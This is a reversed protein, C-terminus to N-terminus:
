DPRIVKDRIERWTILRIGQQEILRRAESSTFFDFDEQRWRAGFDPTDITVAQMEANDYACHILLVNFGPELRTLVDRYYTTLGGREDDPLAMYLRDVVLDGPDYIAAPDLNRRALWPQDLLLVPLGYERGLQKYVAVYEPKLFISFMHSDLHTVDIGYALAREIQARLEREVEAPTADTLLGSFAPHFFHYEDVLGPVADHPTLPGWKFHKWESTLTLHLGFDQEPHQEAYAAIEPFWPCPVMISASNVVGAELARISAANEAHAVGLDDAHIILLKADAPYGLQEALTTPQASTIVPLLLFLVCLHLPPM